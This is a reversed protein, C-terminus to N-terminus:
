TNALSQLVCLDPGKGDSCLGINYKLVQFKSTNHFKGEIVMSTLHKVKVICRHCIYMYLYGQWKRDSSVVHLYKVSKLQFIEKHSRFLSKFESEVSPITVHVM